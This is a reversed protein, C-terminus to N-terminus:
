SAAATTVSSIQALYNAAAPAYWDGLTLEADSVSGRQM